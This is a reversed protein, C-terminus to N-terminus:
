KVRPNSATFIGEPNHLWLWVPLEWLGFGESDERWQDADGTFGAPANQSLSLPIVYEVGVLRLGGNPAPAYLLVEPHAPDFTGDV